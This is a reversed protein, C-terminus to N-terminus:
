RNAAPVDAAARDRDAAGDPKAVSPKADPPRKSLSTEIGAEALVGMMRRRFAQAIVWQKGPWTKLRVKLAVGKDNFGDIGLVDLDSLIFGGLQADQRLTAGAETLLTTVRDIDEGFGVTLEFVAYGFDKTQNSITQIDGFPIIHLTGDAGRLSVRRMTITEVIGSKDGIQVVDGVAISDELIIQASNIFDRVFAQAGFGVAIGVAGGAAVLPGVNVGIESLLVMGCLVALLIMVVRQILPLVTRLRAARRYGNVESEVRAIHQELMANMTEWVALAVVATVAISLLSSGVQAGLPSALWELSRLGWSELVALAAVAWVVATGVINVLQLYRNAKGELSPFREAMEASIQFVRSLIKRLVAVTVAALGVIVVTLVTARAVFRFGDVEALFVGLAVVVYTIAFIHWYPVIHLILGQAMSNGRTALTSAVVTRNQLVLIILLLAIFAGLLKLLFERGVYPLGIFSGAEIAFYGYIAINGIRRVWLHLYAATEDALPALRLGPNRPAFVGAALLSLAGAFINANIIALTVLRAVPKAQVVALLAFAVVLFVTIPVLETLLYLTLSPVRSWGPALKRAELRKRVPALGREALLEFVWAGVLVLVIMLGAEILRDRSESNSWQLKLWTVFNPADAVFAATSFISEGFQAVQDSLSELFRSAVRDNNAKDPETARRAEVLARLQDTFKQRAAPDELTKLLNQAEDTTVPPAAAPPQSQAIAPAVNAAAVLTLLVVLAARLLFGATRAAFPM